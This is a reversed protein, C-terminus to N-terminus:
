REYLELPGQLLVAVVTVEEDLVHEPVDIYVLGPVKSWYQKMMVKWSLKTGNGVVWIRNIKNKLGKLLV